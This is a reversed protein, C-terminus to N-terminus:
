VKLLCFNNKKNVKVFNAQQTFLGETKQKQKKKSFAQGMKKKVVRRYIMSDVLVSVFVFM